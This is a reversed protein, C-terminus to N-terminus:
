LHDSLAPPQKRQASICWTLLLGRHAFSKVRVDPFSDRTAKLESQHVVRCLICVVHPFLLQDGHDLFLIAFECHAAETRNCHQRCDSAEVRLRQLLQRILVHDVTHDRGQDVPARVLDTGCPTGPAASRNPAARSM